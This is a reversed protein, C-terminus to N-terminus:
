IIFSYSKIQSMDIDNIANFLSRTYIRVANTVNQTKGDILIQKNMICWLKHKEEKEFTNLNMMYVERDIIIRFTEMFDCGLNFHNFMNDHFIGIQTLYGNSSIERNFASLLISYGYNLASNVANPTSRTFDMGFLANFYVKAAHGERNTVDGPEIQPIYSFLLDAEPRRGVDYLFGAQKRIKDAVIEKWVLHKVNDAWKMQTRVKASSDHSGHRAVLEASPNHKSDCFIVKIKKEILKEILFGTISIMPNEIVLTNIEDVLIRYTSQSRIVMYGMKYDLKAQNSIVVTRWGM